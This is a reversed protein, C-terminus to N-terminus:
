KKECDEKVAAGVPCIVACNGCDICSSVVQFQRGIRVIAQVPCDDMCAGCQVCCDTIRYM